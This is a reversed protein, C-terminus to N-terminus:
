LNSTVEESMPNVASNFYKVLEGKENILYKCFNWSPAQTNWGNQEKKSLFQYVPHQTEGKVDVKEMMQFTVGYNKTCFSKIDGSTGPEQKGFQNCPFGIIVVKNGFKENLEQLDKYQPTFGCESATNVILLKKGSGKLSSFDFAKGDITTAKLSYINNVTTTTTEMEAPRSAISKCGFLTALGGLSIMTTYILKKM